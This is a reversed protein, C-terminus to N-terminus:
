SPGGTVSPHDPPFNLATFNHFDDEIDPGEAIEFGLEAFIATVEAMTQSIPHIRGEAEPRPPLSVDITEEVLRRDLEARELAAKKIEIAEAVADKVSNLAQGKAKRDEPDLGGLTKMQQTIAGKKGLASVRVDDLAPLDEAKDVADLLTTKLTEVDDMTKCVRSKPVNPSLVYM